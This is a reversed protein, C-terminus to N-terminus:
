WRSSRRGDYSPRDADRKATDGPGEVLQHGDVPTGRRDADVVTGFKRRLGEDIPTSRMAGRNMVDLRALGILVGIDFAEIAAIPGLDEVRMEELRDGFQPGQRVGPQPDVVALAGV